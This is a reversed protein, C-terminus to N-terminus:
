PAYELLASALESISKAGPDHHQIYLLHRVIAEIKSGYSGYVDISLIEQLVQPEIFNYEIKRRSKPVVEGNTNLVKEPANVGNHDGISFRQLQDVNIPARCVPCAKGDRRGLFAKM